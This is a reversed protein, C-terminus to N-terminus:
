GGAPLTHAIGKHCDICTVDSTALTSHASAAAAPQQSFVMAAPTHCSRCEASNNGALEKWVTQAMQLRHAEYKAPTNIKGVIHGWVCNCALIHRWLGAAFTPPVHCDACGARVGYANNWHSSQSLEQAPQNMEHCSASCFKETSAYSLGGFFGGMMLMGLLLAFVGGIPIGLLFWRQPRRWLWVAIGKAPEPLM